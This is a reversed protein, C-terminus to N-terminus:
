HWLLPLVQKNSSSWEPSGEQQQRVQNFDMAMSARTWFTRLYKRMASALDRIRWITFNSKDGHPKIQVKDSDAM